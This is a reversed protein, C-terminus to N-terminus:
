KNKLEGIKFWGGTSIYGDINDIKLRDTIGIIEKNLTDIRYKYYFVGDFVSIIEIMDAQPRRIYTASTKNDLWSDHEEFLWEIFNGSELSLIGITWIDDQWHSAILLLDPYNIDNSEMVTIQKRSEFFSFTFPLDLGYSNHIQYFNIPAVNFSTGDLTYAVRPNGKLLRENAYDYHYGPNTYPKGKVLNDSFVIFDYIYNNHYDRMKGEVLIHKKEKYKQFDKIYERDLFEIIDNLSIAFNLNEGERMKYTTIGILQGKMNLLAGGSSGPSLSATIQIDTRKENRRIASIIGESMTNMLNKPSGIAVINQGEKIGEVNGFEIYKIDLREPIEDIKLLAIDIFSDYAIIDAFQAEEYYKHDKGDFYVIIDEKANEIIHWNTLIYGEQNILVGSGQSIETEIKVVASKLKAIDELSMPGKEM